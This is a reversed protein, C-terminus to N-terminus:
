DWGVGIRGMGPGLYVIRERGRIRAGGLRVLWGGLSSVWM